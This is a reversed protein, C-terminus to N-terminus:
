ARRAVRRTVAYAGLIVVVLGATAGIQARAADDSLM